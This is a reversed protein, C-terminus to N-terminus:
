CSAASASSPLSSPSTEEVINGDFKVIRVPYGKPVHNHWDFEPLFNHEGYRNQGWGEGKRHIMAYYAPKSIEISTMDNYPDYKEDVSIEIMVLLYGNSHNGNEHVWHIFDERKSFTESRKVLHLHQQAADNRLAMKGLKTREWVESIKLRKVM